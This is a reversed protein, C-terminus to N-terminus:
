DRKEPLLYIDTIENSFSCYLTELFVFNENKEFLEKCIPYHYAIYLDKKFTQELLRNIVEKMIEENFPNYFFVVRTHSPPTFLSADELFIKANRIGLRKMNNLSIKYLKEAFEVGIVERFGFLSAKYLSFGKGSGYDLFAGELISPDYEKLRQLIETFPKELVAHYTSGKERNDGKVTLDFLNEPSFDVKKYKFYLHKKVRKFLGRIGEKKAVTKFVEIHHNLTYYKSIDFYFNDEKEM